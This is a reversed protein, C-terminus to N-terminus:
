FATEDAPDQRYYSVLVGHLAPHETKMALPNVFFAESAVGFFEELSVAGYPDIVTPEGADVRVCFAEYDQQLVPAAPLGRAAVLVHALEHIVVNFSDAASRGAGRVDRWSLMVPGGHMAEGVLEEDYEHVVGDDDVVSRSAVVSGPQLVIGVFDDYAALGIKLVPLCAQAAVAVVVDDALRVGGRADFEKRDLFLSTLRRLETAEAADRRRLFPYRILTRKWLADNIPRRAVAAAERRQRWRQLLGRLM